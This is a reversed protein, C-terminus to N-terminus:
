IFRVAIGALFMVVIIGSVIGARWIELKRIRGNQTQMINKIEGVDDHIEKVMQQHIGWETPDINM